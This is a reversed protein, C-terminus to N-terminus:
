QGVESGPNVEKEAAADAAWALMAPLRRVSEVYAAEVDDLKVGYTAFRTVVPAYM